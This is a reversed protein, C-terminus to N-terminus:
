FIGFAMALGVLTILIGSVLLFPYAKDGWLVAARAVLLGFPLAKVKRFASVAMWLGIVIMLLGFFFM